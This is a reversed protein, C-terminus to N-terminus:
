IDSVLAISCTNIQIVNGFVFDAVLQQQFHHIQIVQVQFIIGIGISNEIKDVAIGNHGVISTYNEGHHFGEPRM